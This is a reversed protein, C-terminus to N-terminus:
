AIMTLGEVDLENIKQFVFEESTQQQQEENSALM